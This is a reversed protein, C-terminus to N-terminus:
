SNWPIYGAFTTFASVHEATTQKDEIYGTQKISDGYDGCVDDTETEEAESEM